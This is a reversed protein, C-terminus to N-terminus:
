RCRRRRRCSGPRRRSSTPAPPSRSSRLAVFTTTRAWSARGRTDGQPPRRRLGGERPRDRRVGERVPGLPIRRPRHGHGGRRRGDGRSGRDRPGECRDSVPGVSVRHGGVRGQRGHGRAARRRHARSEPVRLRRGGVAGDCRGPDPRVAKSCIAAVKGPTDQGELTTLDTMRIALELAFLKSERKISRSALSAAREEVAVEDVSGIRPLRPELPLEFGSLVPTTAMTGTYDECGALRGARM